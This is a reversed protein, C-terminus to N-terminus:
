QEVEELRNRLALLALADGPGLRDVALGAAVLLWDGPCPPPGDLAALGVDREVGDLVVSATTGTVVVVRAPISLCMATAGRPCRHDLPSVRVAARVRPV